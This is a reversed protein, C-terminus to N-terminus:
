SCCSCATPGPRALTTRTNMPSRSFRPRSGARARGAAERGLLAAAGLGAIGFLAAPLRLAFEGAGVALSAKAALLYFLPVAFDREILVSRLLEGLSLSALRATRIEDEWLGEHGLAWLRAVASVSLLAVLVLCEVAGPEARSVSAQDARGALSIRM